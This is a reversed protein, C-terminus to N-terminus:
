IKEIQGDDFMISEGNSFDVLYCNVEGTWVKGIVGKSDEGKNFRPHDELTVIVNNYKEM